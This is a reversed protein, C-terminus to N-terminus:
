IETGIALIVSLFIIGLIAASVVAMARDGRRTYGLLAATVRATPTAMLVLLGLWLFADARLTALDALLRGPELPPLPEDPSRGALLMLGVGVALVGVAAYTGLRLLRGIQQELAAEDARSRATV